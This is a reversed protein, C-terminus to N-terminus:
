PHPASHGHEAKSYGVLIWRNSVMDTDMQCVLAWAMSFQGRDKVTKVSNVTRVASVGNVFVAM